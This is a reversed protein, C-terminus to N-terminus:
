VQVLKVETDEFWNDITRPQRKLKGQKILIKVAKRVVNHPSTGQVIIEHDCITVVYSNKKKNM